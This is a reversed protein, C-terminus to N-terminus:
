PRPDSASESVITVQGGTEEWERERSKYKVEFEEPNITISAADMHDIFAVATQLQVLYYHREGSLRSPRRFQSMYDLSSYLRPAQSRLVVFILIPLFDDASASEGSTENLMRYLIRAARFVCEIKEQPARAEDIQLIMKRALSLAPHNQHVKNIDLNEAKVFQLCFMRKSLHRDRREWPEGVNKFISNFVQEDGLIFAELADLTEQVDEDDAGKWLKHTKFPNEMAGLFNQVMGFDTMKPNKNIFAKIFSEVMGLLPAASKDKIKALFEEHAPIMVIDESESWNENLSAPSSILGAAELGYGGKVAEKVVWARPAFSDSETLRRKLKNLRSELASIETEKEELTAALFGNRQQLKSVATDRETLLARLERIEDQQAAVKAELGKIRYKAEGEGMGVADSSYSIAAGESKQDENLPEGDSDFSWLGKESLPSGDRINSVTAKLESLRSTVDNFLTKPSSAKLENKLQTVQSMLMKREKDARQWLGSLQKQLEQERSLAETRQTKLAKKLIDIQSSDKEGM